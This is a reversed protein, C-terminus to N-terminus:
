NMMMNRMRCNSNMCQMMLNKYKEMQDSNLVSKMQSATDYAALKMNIKIESCKTMQQKIEEQSADKNLLKQLMMRNKALEAKYDVQQKMSTTQLGILKETQGEDLGLQMSMSPLTKVLMMYKMMPMKDQMMGAHMPCMMGKMSGQMMNGQMQGEGMMKGHMHGQQATISLLPFILFTLVLLTMKRKM